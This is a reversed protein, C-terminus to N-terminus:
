VVKEMEALKLLAESKNNVNLKLYINQIHFNVASVTVFLKKAIFKYTAGEQLLDIVQNERESFHQSSKRNFMQVVEKAVDSSIFAGQCSIAHMANYLTRQSLPKTLYGVAGQKFVKKILDINKMTSIAIIKIADDHRKILEIALLSAAYPKAIEIFVIQPQTIHYANLAEKITAYIGVLEYDLYSEFYNEYVTYLNNDNDIVIIKPIQLTM